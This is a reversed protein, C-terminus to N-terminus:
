GYVWNLSLQQGILMSLTFQERLSRLAVERSSNNINYNTRLQLELQYTQFSRRADSCGRLVVDRTLRQLGRESLPQADLVRVDRIRPPRGYSGRPWLPAGPSREPSQWPQRVPCCGQSRARLACRYSM